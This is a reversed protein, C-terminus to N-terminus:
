RYGIRNYFDYENWINDERINLAEVVDLLTLLSGGYPGASHMLKMNERQQAESTIYKFIRKLIMEVDDQAPEIRWNLTLYRGMGYIIEPGYIRHLVDTIFQEHKAESFDVSRVNGCSRVLIYGAPRADYRGENTDPNAYILFAKIQGKVYESSNSYEEIAQIQQKENLFGVRKKM